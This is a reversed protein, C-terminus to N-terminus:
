LWRDIDLIDQTSLYGAAQKLQFLINIFQYKTNVYDIQANIYATEANIVDSIQRLGAQYSQETNLLADHYATITKRQADLQDIDNSLESFNVRIQDLATEVAAALAQEQAHYNDTAQRTQATIKGGTFLPISLNLGVSTGRQRSTNPRQNIANYDATATLIPYHGAQQVAITQKAIHAAYENAKITNNTTHAQQLWTNLDNANPMLFKFNTRLVAVHIVEDGTLKKLASQATHLTTKAAILNTQTKLYAVQADSVDTMIIQGADYRQQTEQYLQHQKDAEQSLLALIEQNKALETYALVTRVILDQLAAANEYQAQQALLQDSKVTLWQGVDFLTQQLTVTFNQSDHWLNQQDEYTYGTAANLSPLLSARDIALQEEKSLTQSHIQLYTPDHLLAKQYVTALDAACVVAHPLMAVLIISRIKKM